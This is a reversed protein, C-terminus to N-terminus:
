GECTGSSPAKVKCGFLGMARLDTKQRRVEDMWRGGNRVLWAGDGCGNM